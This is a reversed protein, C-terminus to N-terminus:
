RWNCCSCKLWKWVSPPSLITLSMWENWGGEISLSCLFYFVILRAFNYVSNPESMYLTYINIAFRASFRWRRLRFFVGERGVVTGIWSWCCCFGMSNEERITRVDYIFIYLRRVGSRRQRTYRTREEEGRIHMSRDSWGIQAFVRVNEAAGAAWVLPGESHPVRSRMYSGDARRLFLGFRRRRFRRQQGGCM